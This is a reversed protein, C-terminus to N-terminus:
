KSEHQAESRSAVPSAERSDHQLPVQGRRKLEDFLDEIANKKLIFLTPNISRIIHEQLSTTASLERV